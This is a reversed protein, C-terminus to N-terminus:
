KVSRSKTLEEMIENMRQQMQQIENNIPVKAAQCDKTADEKRAELESLQEQLAKKEKMKFFGLEDRAKTKESIQDELAALAKVEPLEDIEKQKEAIKEKLTKKENELAEKEEPHKEWYKKIAEEKEEKKHEEIKANCKKLDERILGISKNVGTQLFGYKVYVSRTHNEMVSLAYELCEKRREEDEYVLSLLYAKNHEAITKQASSSPTSNKYIELMEYAKRAIEDYKKKFTKVELETNLSTNEYKGISKEKREEKPLRINYTMGLLIKCKLVEPELKMIGMLKDKNIDDIQDFMLVKLAKTVDSLNRIMNNWLVGAEESDLPVHKLAHNWYSVGEAIRNNRTTSKWMISTGKCLEAWYNVEDLELVKNVYKLTEDLNGASYADMMLKKYRELEGSHDISVMGEVMMKKAEEVSYKCGCSQCVFVGEQKVLDTSGCMECTLRKM